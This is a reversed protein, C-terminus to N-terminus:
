RRDGIRLNSRSAIRGACPRTESILGARCFKCTTRKRSPSGFPYWNSDRDICSARISRRHAECGDQVTVDVPSSLIGSVSEHCIKPIQDAFEWEGKCQLLEWDRFDGRRDDDDPARDEGEHRNASIELAKQYQSQLNVGVQRYVQRRQRDVVQTTVSRAAEKTNRFAAHGGSETEEHRLIVLDSFLTSTGTLVKRASSPHSTHSTSTYQSRPIQNEKLPM